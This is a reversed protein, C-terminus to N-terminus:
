TVPVAPTEGAINTASLSTSNWGNRAERRAFRGRDWYKAARGERDLTIV